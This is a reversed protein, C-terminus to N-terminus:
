DASESPDRAPSLFRLRDAGAPRRALVGGCHAPGHPRVPTSTRAVPAFVDNRWVADLAREASAERPMLRQLVQPAATDPLADLALLMGTVPDNARETQDDAQSAIFEARNLM